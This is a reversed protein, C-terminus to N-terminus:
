RLPVVDVVAEAELAGDGLPILALVDAQAARGLQHSVNAGLSVARDGELRMPLARLRAPLREIREALVAPRTIPDSPLAQLARVVPILLLYLGVLCSLPNGPLGCVLTGDPARGGWAPQGPQTAIRWFLQEVGLAALAPKVHDRPGVSVGGSSVVLDADAIASAFADRTADAEDPVVGDYVVDCGAERLTGAILVSNSEHIQGRRLPTGPPVLEDGTTLVRVRPRRHCPVTALGLGALSAAALAGLRTGARLVVDGTQVDAGVRRVHAGTEAPATARVHGDREETQEVPIVADAGEPLVGGTAIAAATGPALPDPDDGARIQAAVPWPGPEGARVAFGDMASNAWRPLDHPARADEGLVRGIAADIPVADAPLPAVAAVLLRRAEEVPVREHPLDAPLM